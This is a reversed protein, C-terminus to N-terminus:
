RVYALCSMFYNPIFSWAFMGGTAYTFFRQTSMHGEEVEAVDNQHLVNLM